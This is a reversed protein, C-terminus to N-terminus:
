LLLFHCTGKTRNLKLWKPMFLIFQFLELYSKNLAIPSKWLAMQSTNNNDGRALTSYSKKNTQMNFTGISIEM